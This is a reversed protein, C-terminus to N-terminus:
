SASIFYIVIFVCQKKYDDLVLDDKESMVRNVKNNSVPQM